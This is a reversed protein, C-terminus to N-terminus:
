QAAREEVGGRGSRDGELHARQRGAVSQRDDEVAAAVEARDLGVDGVAAEAGARLDSGVRQQAHRAVEVEAVRAVAELGLLEVRRLGPRQAVRDHGGVGHEGHPALRELVQGLAGHPEVAREVQADLQGGV